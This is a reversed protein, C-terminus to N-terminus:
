MSAAYSWITDLETDSMGLALQAEKILDNDREFFTAKELRSSIFAWSHVNYNEHEPDNFTAIWNLLDSEYGSMRLAFWFQDPQLNPFSTDEETEPIKFIGNELIMGCVIDQGLVELFGKEFYPQKQIVVNNELKIYAM